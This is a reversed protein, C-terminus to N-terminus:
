SKVAVEEVRSSAYGKVLALAARREAEKRRLPVFHEPRVSASDNVVGLGQSDVPIAYGSHHTEITAVWKKAEAMIFEGLFIRAINGVLFGV